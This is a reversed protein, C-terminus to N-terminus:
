LHCRIAETPLVVGEEKLKEGIHSAFCPVQFLKRSCSAILQFLFGSVADNKGRMM